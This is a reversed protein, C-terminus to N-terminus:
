PNPGQTPIQGHKIGEYIAYVGVLTGVAIVGATLIKRLDLLPKTELISLQVSIEEEVTEPASRPHENFHTSM